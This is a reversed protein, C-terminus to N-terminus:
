NDAIYINASQNDTKALYEALLTHKLYSDDSKATGGPHIKEKVTVM